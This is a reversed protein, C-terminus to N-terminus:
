TSERGGWGVARGDVVPLPLRAAKLLTRYGLLRLEGVLGRSGRVMEKIEAAVPDDDSRALAAEQDGLSGLLPLLRLKETMPLFDFQLQNYWLAGLETLHYGELTERVLGMKQWGRFYREFGRALRADVFFRQLAYLVARRKATAGDLRIANTVPIRGEDIAREYRDLDGVNRYSTGGVHGIASPGLALLTNLGNGGGGMVTDIFGDRKGRIFVEGTRQKFGAATLLETSLKRFRLLDEGYGPPRKKGASVDRYLETDTVMTYSYVDIGHLNWGVYESFDSRVSAEDQDPLGIMVDINTPFDPSFTKVMELVKPYADVKEGRGITRRVKPDLAQVGFSIRNVGRQVCAELYGPALMQRAVGELTVETDPALQFRAKLADLIRGIQDPTLETPTGGGLYITNYVVRTAAPVKSVMEIERLLHQVFREHREDTRDTAKRTKYLPCFDCFFPCFPIHIYIQNGHSHLDRTQEKWELLSPHPDPPWRWPPPPEVDPLLQPMPYYIIQHPLLTPYPWQSRDTTM